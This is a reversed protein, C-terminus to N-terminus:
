IQLKGKALKLQLFILFCRWGYLKYQSVCMDNEWVYANLYRLKNKLYVHKWQLIRVCSIKM